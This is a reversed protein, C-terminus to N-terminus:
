TRHPRLPRCHKASWNARSRAPGPSADYQRGGSEDLAATLLVEPAGASSSTDLTTERGDRRRFPALGGETSIRWVGEGGSLRRVYVEDRGSEDSVYM